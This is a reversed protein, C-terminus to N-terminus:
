KLDHGFAANDKPLFLSSFWCRIVAVVVVNLLFLLTVLNTIADQSSVAPNGNSDTANLDTGNEGFGTYNLGGDGAVGPPGPPGPPGSASGAMGQDGNVVAATWYHGPPLLGTSFPAYIASVLQRVYTRGALSPAPPPSPFWGNGQAPSSPYSSVPADSMGVDENGNQGNKGNQGNRGGNSYSNSDSDSDSDSDDDDNDSDRRSSGWGVQLPDKWDSNVDPRPPILSQLPPPPYPVAPVVDPVPALVAALLQNRVQLQQTVQDFTPFESTLCVDSTFVMSQGDQRTLYVDCGAPIQLSSIPNSFVSGKATSFNYDGVVYSNGMTNKCDTYATIGPCVLFAPGPDGKAGQSPGPPGVLGLPGPLGPPGMPGQGGVISNVAEIPSITTAAPVVSIIHETPALEVSDPAGPPSLMGGPYDQIKAKVKAKSYLTQKQKAKGAESNDLMVIGAAALAKEQNRMLRQQAHPTVEVQHVSADTVEHLVADEVELTCLPLVHILAVFVRLM